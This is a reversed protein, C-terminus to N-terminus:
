NYEELHTMVFDPLKDSYFFPNTKLLCFNSIQSFKEEIKGALSMVKSLLSETNEKDAPIMTDFVTPIQFYKKYKAIFERMPYKYKIQDPIFM